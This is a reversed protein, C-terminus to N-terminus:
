RWSGATSVTSSARLAADKLDRKPPHSTSACLIGREHTHEAVLPSDSQLRSVPSKASRCGRLATGLQLMQREGIVWDRASRRALSERVVALSQNASHFRQRTEVVLRDRELHPKSKPSAFGDVSHRTWLRHDGGSGNEDYCASTWTKRMKCRQRQNVGSSKSVAPTVQESERCSREYQSARRASRSPSPSPALALSGPATDEAASVSAPM